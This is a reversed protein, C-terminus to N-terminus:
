PRRSRYVDDLISNTQLASVKRGPFRRSFEAFIQSPSREIYNSPIVYLSAPPEGPVVFVTERSTVVIGNKRINEELVICSLGPALWADWEQKGGAIVSRYSVVEQGAKISRTTKLNTCGPEPSAIYKLESETVAYTTISETIPDVSIRKRSQFDVITKFEAWAGTPDRRRVLEVSGRSGVARLLQEEYIVNGSPDFRKEVM